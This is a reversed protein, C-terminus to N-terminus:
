PLHMGWPIALGSGCEGCAANLGSAPTVSLWGGLQTCPFALDNNGVEILIDKLGDVEGLDSQAVLRCCPRVGDEYVLATRRQAVM